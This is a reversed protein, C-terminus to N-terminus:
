GGCGRVMFVVVAISAAIGLVSAIRVASSWGSRTYLSSDEERILRAWEERQQEDMQRPEYPEDLWMRDDDPSLVHGIVRM